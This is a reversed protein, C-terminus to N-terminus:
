MLPSIANLHGGRWNASFFEAARHVMRPPRTESRERHVDLWTFRQHGTSVRAARVSLEASRLGEAAVFQVDAIGKFSSPPVGAQHLLAAAREHLMAAGLDLHKAWATM